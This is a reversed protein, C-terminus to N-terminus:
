RQDILPVDPAFRRLAVALQGTDLRWGSISRCSTVLRDDPAGAVARGVWMLVQRAWGGIAGPLPPSGDPRLVGLYPLGQARDQRWLVVAQIDRWPVHATTAAYRLPSGGLTIGAGDVRLAVKRSLAVVLLLVGGGGFFVLSVARLVTGMPVFIAVLAFVVSISILGFTRPTFRYREEYGDDLPM